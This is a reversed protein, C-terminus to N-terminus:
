WVGLLEELEVRDAIRRLDAQVERDGMFGRQNDREDLWTALIRLKLSDKCNM